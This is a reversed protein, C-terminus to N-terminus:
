RPVVKTPLALLPATSHERLYRALPVTSLDYGALELPSRGRLHPQVEPGFPTFRYSLEFLHLYVRATEVSDFGAFNQYHQDFRRILRETANNTLPILPREYANLLLPFHRAVSDVLPQLRPDAELWPQCDQQWQAYRQEVTRRTQADFVRDLAKRLAFM